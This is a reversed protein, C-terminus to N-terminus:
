VMGAPESMSSTAVRDGRRLLLESPSRKVPRRPPPPPDPPATPTGAGAEAERPSAPQSPPFARFESVGDDVGWGAGAGGGVGALRRLVAVLFDPLHDAMMRPSLLIGEAALDAYDVWVAEFRRAPARRATAPGAAGGAAAAKAAPVKVPRLLMMRGPAVFRRAGELGGLGSRTRALGRRFRALLAQTEPPVAAPPRFLEGPTWARGWPLAPRLFLWAKPVGCRAAAVVMDDRLREVAALSLRPIWDKGAAVSTTTPALAAALAPCALGGPPAFAWCAVPPASASPSAFPSTTPPRSAAAAAAAAPGGRRGGGGERQAARWRRRLVSQLRRALLAAVGAGLSHGTVVLRWGRCGGPPLDAAGLGVRPPLPRGELLASLVGEGEVDAAVARAAALIGAHAYMPTSPLCDDADGDADADDADAGGEERGGLWRDCREAECLADTLVDAASLTGRVALVVSPPQGEGGHPPRDAPTDLAIFYPLTGRAPSESRFRLFILAPPPIRTLALVARRTAGKSGRLRASPGAAPGGGSRDSGLPHVAPGCGPPPPAAAAVAASDEDSSDAVAAAAAATLRGAGPLCAVCGGGGCGSGGSGGRGCLVRAADGAGPRAWLYLLYGYAAYAFHSYHAAAALDAPAVRALAAAAAAAAAAPDLDPRLAAAM